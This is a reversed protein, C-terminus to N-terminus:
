RTAIRRPRARKPGHDPIMMDAKNPASHGGCAMCDICTLKRGAQKSAPCLGEGKEKEWGVSPAVRFTRFGLAKAFVRELSSDVSAMCWQAFEPYAAWQHTYGTVGAVYALLALWAGYPIAVPDGYAGLRVQRGRLMPAIDAPEADPYLGGQLSKFVVSPGNGLQVYCARTGDIRIQAGNELLRYKGRHKCDGCISFDAGTQSAEVPHLDARIIYAQVMAGTKENASDGLLVIGVIPAGDIMSPGRYFVFGSM